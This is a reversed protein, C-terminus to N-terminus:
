NLKWGKSKLNNRANESAQTPLETFHIEKDKAQVNGNDADILFDDANVNHNMKHKNLESQIDGLHIPYIPRVQDYDYSWYTDDVGEENIGKYKVVNLNYYFTGEGLNEVRPPPQHTRNSKM